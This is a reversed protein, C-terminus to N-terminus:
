HPTRPLLLTACVTSPSIKPPWMKIFWHCAHVIGYLVPTNTHTGVCIKRVNHSSRCSGGVAEVYEGLLSLSKRLCCSRNVMGVVLSCLVWGFQMHPTDPGTRYSQHRGIFLFPPLHNVHKPKIRTFAILRLHWPTDFHLVLKVASHLYFCSLSLLNLLLQTFLLCAPRSVSSDPPGRFPLWHYLCM